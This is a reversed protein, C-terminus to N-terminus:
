KWESQILDLTGNVISDEACGSKLRSGLVQFTYADFAADNPIYGSNASGNASTVMMTNAIPSNAKLRQAIASYVEANVTTLAVNGIRLVGLRINVPDGDEYSGPTGERANDLRRRGPCTVTNQAAYIAPAPDLRTTNTMVRIVAEGLLVGESEMVKELVDTVHPDAARAQVKGDCLPAEITERTMVNGTIPADSRSAMVNTSVRLYHPFAKEMEM